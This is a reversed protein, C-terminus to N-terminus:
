IYLHHTSPGAPSPKIFSNRQFDPPIALTIQVTLVPHIPPKRQCYKDIIFASIQDVSNNKPTQREREAIWCIWQLEPDHLKANIDPFVKQVMKRHSERMAIGCDDLMEYVNEPQVHIIGSLRAIPLYGYAM